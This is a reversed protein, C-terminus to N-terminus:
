ESLTYKSNTLEFYKSVGPTFYVKRASDVVIVDLGMKQGLEIGKARGLSFLMTTCGDADFSKATVITVSTLGNDLPYGTRTDFIHHYRKGDKEFYREYVGSTVMTKDVLSAVGLYAGRENEPDQLGVRWPKGDPKSGMVFINGGLDIIAGVVGRSRLVKVVEDTAYGKTGSGLDIAMGKRKLFITKASEDLVVDKWNVLALAAKIEAPSPLRAHDTGIGWLQVLPGVTPDFAGDSMSAYGLDKKLMAIADDGVKVPHLGSAANVMAIESNPNQESLEGDIQRLRAFADDLAQEDGGQAITITCPTDMIFESRALSHPSAHECSAFQCTVLVLVALVIAPSRRPLSSFFAPIVFMHIPTHLFLFFYVLDSSNM